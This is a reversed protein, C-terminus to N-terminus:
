EKRANSSKSSTLRLYEDSVLWVILPRIVILTDSQFGNDHFKVKLIRFQRLKKFIAVRESESKPPERRLQTHLVTMVAEYTVIIEGDEDAGSENFGELYLFKLALAVAVMDPSLRMRPGAFIERDDDPVGPISSMPPYLLLTKLNDIHLFKYGSVFFYDEIVPLIRIAQDYADRETASDERCIAGLSLLRNIILQFDDPKVSKPLAEALAKSFMM